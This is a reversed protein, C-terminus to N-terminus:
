RWAVGASRATADRLGLPLFQGRSRRAGNTANSARRAARPETPMSLKGTACYGGQSRIERHGLLGRRLESLTEVRIPGGCRQCEIAM